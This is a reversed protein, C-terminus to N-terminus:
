KGDFIIDLASKVDAMNSKTVITKEDSDCGIWEGNGNYQVFGQKYIWMNEMDKAKQM